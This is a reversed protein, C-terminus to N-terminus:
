FRPGRSSNSGAQKAVAQEETKEKGDPAITKVIVKQKQKKGRNHEFTEQKEQEDTKPDKGHKEGGGRGNRKPVKKFKGDKGKPPAKKKPKPAEDEAEGGSIPEEKKLKKDVVPNELWERFSHLEKLLQENTIDTM